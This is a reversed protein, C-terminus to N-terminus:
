ASLELLLDFDLTSALEFCEKLALELAIVADKEPALILYKWVEALRMRLRQTLDAGSRYRGRYHQPTRLAWPVDLDHLAILIRAAIASLAQRIARDDDSILASELSVTAAWTGALHYGLVAFTVPEHSVQRRRASLEAGLERLLGENM